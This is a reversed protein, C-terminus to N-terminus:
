CNLLQPTLEKLIGRSVDDLLAASAQDPEVPRDVLVFHAKELIQACGKAKESWRCPCCWRWPQAALRMLPPAGTIALYGDLEHLVAADDMASFHLGSLHELKKLDLRAPARNIGGLDFWAQAQADTFFEDNGHSWGLRALYNRLAAAPIAWARYDEIGLAGHRKSLKKGDEGHILPIHAWVPVAWGM